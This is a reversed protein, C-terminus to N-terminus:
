LVMTLVAIVGGALRGLRELNIVHSVHRKQVGRVGWASLVVSLTRAIFSQWRCGKCQKKVM